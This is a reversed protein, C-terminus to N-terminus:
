KLGFKIIREPDFDEKSSMLKNQGYGMLLTFLKDYLDADRIKYRQKKSDVFEFFTLSFSIQVCKEYFNKQYHKTIPEPHRPFRRYLQKKVKAGSLDRGDYIM